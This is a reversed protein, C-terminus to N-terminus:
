NLLKFIILEYLKLVLKCISKIHKYKAEDKSKSQSIQDILTKLETYQINSTDM